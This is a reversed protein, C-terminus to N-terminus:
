HNCPKSPEPTPNALREGRALRGYAAQHEYRRGLFGPPMAVGKLSLPCLPSMVAYFVWLFPHLDLWPESRRSRGKRWPQQGNSRAPKAM